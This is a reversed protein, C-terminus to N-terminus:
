CLCLSPWSFFAPPSALEKPGETHRDSSREPGWNGMQEAMNIRNVSDTKCLTSVWNQLQGKVKGDGPQVGNPTVEGNSHTRGEKSGEARGWLGPDMSVRLAATLSVCVASPGTVEALVSSLM